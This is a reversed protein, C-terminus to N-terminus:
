EKRADSDPLRLEGAANLAKSEAAACCDLCVMCGYGMYRQPWAPKGCDDCLGIGPRIECLSPVTQVSGAPATFSGGAPIAVTMKAAVRKIREIEKPSHRSM